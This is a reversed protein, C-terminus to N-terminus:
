ASRQAYMYIYIYISAHVQANFACYHKLVSTISFSNPPDSDIAKSRYIQNNRLVDDHHLDDNRVGHM